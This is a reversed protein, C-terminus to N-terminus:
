SRDKYPIPPTHPSDVPRIERAVVTPLTPSLEADLTSLPYAEVCPLTPSSSNLDNVVSVNRLIADEPSIVSPIPAVSYSISPQWGDVHEVTSGARAELPINDPIFGTSHYTIPTYESIEYDKYEEIGDKQSQPQTEPQAVQDQPNDQQIQNVKRQNQRYKLLLKPDRSLLITKSKSIIKWVSIDSSSLHNEEYYM